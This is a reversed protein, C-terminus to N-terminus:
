AIVITIPSGSVILFAAMFGLGVTRSRITAPAASMILLRPRFAVLM